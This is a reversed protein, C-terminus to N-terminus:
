DWWQEPPRLRDLEVAWYFGYTVIILVILLLVVKAANLFHLFVQVGPTPAGFRSILVSVADGLGLALALNYGIDVFLGVGNFISNLFASSPIHIGPYTRGCFRLALGLALVYVPVLVLRWWRSKRALIAILASLVGFMLVLSLDPM